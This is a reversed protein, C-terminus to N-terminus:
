AINLGIINIIEIRIQIFLQRPLQYSFYSDNRMLGFRNCRNAFGNGPPNKKMSNCPRSNIHHHITQQLQDKSTVDISLNLSVNSLRYSTVHVKGLCGQFQPAKM